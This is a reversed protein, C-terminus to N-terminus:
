VRLESLVTWLRGATAFTEANLQDDPFGIGYEDELDMLLNVVSLSDLGLEILRRDAPIGSGEDLHVLHPRLVREFRDEWPTSM